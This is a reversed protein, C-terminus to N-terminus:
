SRAGRAYRSQVSWSTIPESKTTLSYRVPTTTHSSHGDDIAGFRLVAADRLYNNTVKWPGRTGQRPLKDNGRSRVQRILDYGFERGLAAGVQAVERAAAGIRDLRAVLSAHLTPPVALTPAM